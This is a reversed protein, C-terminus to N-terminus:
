YSGDSVMYNKLYTRAVGEVEAVIIVHIGDGLHQLTHVTHGARVRCEVGVHVVDLQGAYQLCAQGNVNDRVLVVKRVHASPHELLELVDEVVVKISSLMKHDRHDRSNTSGVSRLESVIREVFDCEAEAHVTVREQHIQGAVFLQEVVVEQVTKGFTLGNVVLASLLLFIEFIGLNCLESDAIYQVAWGVVIVLVIAVIVIVVPGRCISHETARLANRDTETWDQLRHRRDKKM